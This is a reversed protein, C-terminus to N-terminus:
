VGPPVTLVGVMVTVGLVTVLLYTADEAVPPPLTVAPVAAEAVIGTSVVLTALSVSVMPQVSPLKVALVGVATVRGLKVLCVMAVPMLLAVAECGVKVPVPASILNVPVSIVAVPVYLASPEQLAGSNVPSCTLKLMVPLTRLSAIDPPVNVVVLVGIVTDQDMGRYPM